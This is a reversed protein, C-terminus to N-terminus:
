DLLRSTLYPLTPADTRSFSSVGDMWGEMWGDV